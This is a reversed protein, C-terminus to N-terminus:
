QAALTLKPTAETCLYGSTPIISLTGFNAAGTPVATPAAPGGYFIALGFQQGNGVTIPGLGNADPQFLTPYAAPNAIGLNFTVSQNGSNDIRYNAFGPNRPVGLVSFAQGGTTKFNLIGGLAVQAISVTRVTNQPDDTSISLTAAFSQGPTSTQAVMNPTVKLTVSGGAPVTGTPNDLTYFSGGVTFSANYTYDTASANSIVVNQASATTDNEPTQSVTSAKNPARVTPQTRCTCQTPM